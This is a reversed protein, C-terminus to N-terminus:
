VALVEAQAGAAPFLTFTLTLVLTWMIGGLAQLPRAMMM